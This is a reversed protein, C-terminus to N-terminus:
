GPSAVTAQYTACQDRLPCGTCPRCHEACKRPDLFNRLAGTQDHRPRNALCHHICIETILAHLDWLLHRLTGDLHGHKGLAARLGCPASGTADRCNGAQAACDCRTLAQEVLEQVAEYRARAFDFGPALGLRGFLRRTYADVVFVPHGGAYLMITDATEPGIRPLALLEARLTARDKALLAALDGNYHELLYHCIAQLGPAKQNYYACPRLLAALEATDAGGIGAPSLMGRDILRRVAGEVAEWRTQQVLVAGVLVEFQPTDSFLPWWHPEHGFHEALADYVKLLADRTLM